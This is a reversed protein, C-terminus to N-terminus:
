PLTNPEDYDKFPYPILVFVTGCPSASSLQFRFQRFRLLWILFYQFHFVREMGTKSLQYWLVVM